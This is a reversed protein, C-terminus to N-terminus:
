MYVSDSYNFNPMHQNRFIIGLVIQKSAVLVTHTKEKRADLRAHMEVWIILIKFANKRVYADTRVRGSGTYACHVCNVPGGGGGGGHTRVIHVVWLLRLQRM